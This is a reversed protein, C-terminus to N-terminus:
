STLWHKRACFNATPLPSPSLLLLFNNFSFTPDSGFSGGKTAHLILQAFTDPACGFSWDKHSWGLIQLDQASTPKVAVQVVAWCLSLIVLKHCLFFYSVAVGFPLWLCLGVNLLWFMKRKKKEWGGGGGSILACFNYKYM